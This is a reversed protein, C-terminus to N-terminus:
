PRVVVVSAWGSAGGSDFARIVITNTGTLLPINSAVWQAAGQATGSAGTSTQWTVQTVGTGGSSRGSVSIAAANATTVASSPSAISVSVPAANASPAAARTVVASRSVTHSASDFATVTLTNTGTVLPVEAASWTGSAGATIKGSYGHDTQYQLTLPAVGGSVTGSITIQAAQGPPTIPNLTLSLPSVSNGTTVPIPGTTIPVVTVPVSSGNGPAGYLQRAAGIDNKSLPMGRRYYPYMVDGPNDTHGLGIAHGLEHLAVTYIDTDGGAHWNEAANLHMDGAISEPNLPVPYFTHALIMGATDFPYPDGHPGAAFKVLVTRVATATAAPQFVVNAVASWANMARVIESEVTSAPVEPTLTGFAYGLHAMHDSDLSWGEIINAYQAIPGALTLMGACPMTGSGAATPELLAPDAPFIYAVEDHRALEKLKDFSASVIIHDPLLVPPREFTIGEAAAISQRANAQVDAHFEVIALIPSTASDLAPSLKDRPELEGLWRVGGIQAAALDKLTVARPTAVVLANDPIVSVVRFGAMLLADLDAVGPFHDFQFIQHVPGGRLRRPLAEARGSGVTGTYVTRTKLHLEQGAAAGCAVWGWLVAGTLLSCTWSNVQMSM